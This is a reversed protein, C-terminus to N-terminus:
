EVREIIKKNVTDYFHTNGEIDEIRLVEGELECLKRSNTEIIGKFTPVVLTKGKESIIGVKDDKYIYAIGDLNIPNKIREYDLPLIVEGDNKVIGTKGSKWAQLYIDKSNIRWGYISDYKASLTDRKLAREGLVDYVMVKNLSDYTQSVSTRLVKEGMLKVVYRGNRQTDIVIEYKEVKYEWMAGCTRQLNRGEKEDGSLTINVFRGNRYALFEKQLVNYGKIKDYRKKIFSKGELDIVRFRRGKRIIALTKDKYRRFYGAEDFKARIQVQGDRNIYGYKNNEKYPVLEGTECQANGVECFSVLIITLLLLNKMHLLIKKILVKIDIISLLIEKKLVNAELKIM